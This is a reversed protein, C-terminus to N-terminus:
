SSEQVSEGCQNKFAACIAGETLPSVSGKCARMTVDRVTRFNHTNKPGTYRCLSMANSCCKSGGQGSPSNFWEYKSTQSEFSTVIRCGDNPWRGGPNNVGTSGGQCVSQCNNIVCGFICAKDPEIIGKEIPPQEAGYDRNKCDTFCAQKDSNKGKALEGGCLDCGIACARYEFTSDGIVNILYQTQNLLIQCKNYCNQIGTVAVQSESELKALIQSRLSVAEATAATAAVAVAALALLARM